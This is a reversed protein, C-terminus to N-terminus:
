DLLGAIETLSWVHDAVGAAMAPTTPRGAAKTLTIHLRAFNYHMYHLSVAHALNEVRPEPISAAFYTHVRPGATIGPQLYTGGENRSWIARAGLGLPLVATPSKTLLNGSGPVEGRGAVAENVGVLQCRHAAALPQM